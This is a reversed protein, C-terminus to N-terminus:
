AIKRYISQGAPVFRETVKYLSESHGIYLFAEEKMMNAFRDFLVRQTPKDFYIIVNRCFVADFKRRMPWEGHLNLQKFTILKRIASAIGFHTSDLQELYRQRFDITIDPLEDDAFIGDSAKQVMDTDIDTALIKADWLSLDPLANAITMAISYPEQGSSCGASWIRLSKDGDRSAAAVFAPIAVEEIHEFHHPERFFNTKNTTLANVFFEMETERQPSNLIDVYSEFDALHLAMLRKSIRRYVMNRKFEPINIGAIEKALSCFHVFQQDSMHPGRMPWDSPDPLQPLAAITNRPSALNM